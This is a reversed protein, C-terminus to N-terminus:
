RSRLLGEEEVTLRQGAEVRGLKDSFNDVNLGIHVSVEIPLGVEDLRFNDSWNFGVLTQM